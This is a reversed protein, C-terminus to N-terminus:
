IKSPITANIKDIINEVTTELSAALEQFLIGQIYELMKQDQDYMREKNGKAEMQKRMLTNALKIIAKQDGGRIINNYKKNRIKADEIWEMGPEEFAQIVKRAEEQDMIDLMVVQDSDVPVSILLNPDEIPYLVYYERTVDRYSKECIDDIKCVGHTSYIILDGIKFM